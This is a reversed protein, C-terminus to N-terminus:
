VVTNKLADTQVRQRGSSGVMSKIAIERIKPSTSLSYLYDEDCMNNQPACLLINVLVLLLKM